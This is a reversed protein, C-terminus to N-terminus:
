RKKLSGQGTACVWYEDEVAPVLNKIMPLRYTSNLASIVLSSLGKMRGIRTNGLLREPLTLYYDATAKIRESFLRGRQYGMEYPTGRLVLVPIELEPYYSAEGM